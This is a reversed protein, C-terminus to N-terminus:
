LLSFSTMVNERSTKIPDKEYKRIVIVYMFAQILEFTPRIGVSVLSNAAWTHFNVVHTVKPAHLIPEQIAKHLLTSVFECKLRTM